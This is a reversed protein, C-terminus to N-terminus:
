PGLSLTYEFFLKFASYSGGNQVLTEEGLVEIRQKFSSYIYWWGEYEWYDGVSWSPKDGSAAVPGPLPGVLLSAAIAAFLVAASSSGERVGHGWMIIRHCRRWLVSTGGM